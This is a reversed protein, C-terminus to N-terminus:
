SPQPGRPRLPKRPGLPDLAKQYELWAHRRFSPTPRPLQALLRRRAVDPRVTESFNGMEFVYVFSGQFLNRGFTRPLSPAHSLPRRNEDDIVVRGEPEEAAHVQLELSVPDDLGATDVFCLCGEVQLVDIGDKEVNVETGLVPERQERRDRLAPM